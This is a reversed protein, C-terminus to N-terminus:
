KNYIEAQCHKLHVTVKAEYNFFSISGKKAIERWKAMLFVCLECSMSLNINALFLSHQHALLYLGVLNVLSQM